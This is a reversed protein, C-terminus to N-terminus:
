SWADLLRHLLSSLHPADRARADFIWDLPRANQEPRDAAHLAGRMMSFIVARALRPPLDHRPWDLLCGASRARIRMASRVALEAVTEGQERLAAPAEGLGILLIARARVPSPPTALTLTEGIKGSFIGGARLRALTGGLREDLHYAGGTSRNAHVTEFMGVVIVDLGAGTPDIEEAYFRINRHQGIPLPMQPGM